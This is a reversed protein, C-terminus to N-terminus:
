LEGFVGGCSEVTITMAGRKGSYNRSGVSIFKKQTESSEVRKKSYYFSPEGLFVFGIDYEDWVMADIYIAECDDPSLVGKVWKRVHKSVDKIKHIPACEQWLPHVGDPIGHREAHKAFVVSEDPYGDDDFDSEMEKLVDNAFQITRTLRDVIEAVSLDVETKTLERVPAEPKNSTEM